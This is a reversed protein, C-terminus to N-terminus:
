KVLFAMYSSFQAHMVDRSDFSGGGATISKEIWNYEGWEEDSFFFIIFFFEQRKKPFLVSQNQYLPIKMTILGSSFDLLAYPKIWRIPVEM